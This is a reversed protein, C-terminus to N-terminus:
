VVDGGQAGRPDTGPVTGGRAGPEHTRRQMAKSTAHYWAAAKRHARLEGDQETERQRERRAGSAGLRRARSHAEVVRAAGSALRGPGGRGRGAREDPAPGAGGGELGRVGGPAQGPGEGGAPGAAPVGGHFAVVRGAHHGEARLRGGVRGEL